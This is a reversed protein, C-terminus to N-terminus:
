PQGAMRAATLEGPKWGSGVVLRAVLEGSSSEAGFVSHGVAAVAGPEDRDAVLLGIGQEGFEGVV